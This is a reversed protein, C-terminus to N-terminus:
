RPRYRSILYQPEHSALCACGVLREAKWELEWRHFQRCHHILTSKRTPLNSVAHSRSALTAKESVLLVDASAPWTSSALSLQIPSDCMSPDHLHAHVSCLMLWSSVDLLGHYIYIYIVACQLSTVWVGKMRTLKCNYEFFRLFVNSM